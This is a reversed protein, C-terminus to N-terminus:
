SRHNSKASVSFVLNLFEIQDRLFFDPNISEYLPHYHRRVESRLEDAAPSHGIVWFPVRLAPTAMMAAIAHRMAVGATGEPIVAVCGGYLCLLDHWGSTCWPQLRGQALELKLTPTQMSNFGNAVMLAMGVAERDQKQDDTLLLITAM